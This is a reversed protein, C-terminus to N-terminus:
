NMICRVSYGGKKDVDASGTVGDNKSLYRVWSKDNDVETSTWWNGYIFMSGYVGVSYYRDGGPLATFGSENTASTNPSQWHNTGAEKLKGGSNSGLFSTLTTWDSDTAVRWGTPALTKNPTNADTDHIGAVAYWNYLKGFTTGNASTNNYYCWAGTTLGTWENPDTVEPIVTGDSYTTVELNKLMWNQTGIAVSPTTSETATGGIINTWTYGNFVQMEGNAGCDSCWIQLGATPNSISNKQVSIMRPPLFGKTTSQVDLLSSPHASSNGTSIAVSQAMFISTTILSILNLINKM